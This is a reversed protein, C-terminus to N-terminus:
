LCNLDLKWFVNQSSLYRAFGTEQMQPAQRGCTLVDLVVYVCLTYFFNFHQSSLDSPYAYVPHHLMCSCGTLQKHFFPVSELLACVPFDNQLPLQPLFM